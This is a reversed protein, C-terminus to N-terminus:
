SLEGIDLSSPYLRKKQQQVYKCEPEQQPQIKAVQPTEEEIELIYQKAKSLIETKFDMLRKGKGIKHAYKERIFQPLKPHLLQIVNMLVLDEHSPSLREDEKLKENKWEITDGKKALNGMILSRYQNYFGIPTTQATPDWKLDVVNFFHIGQTEIDYDQRIKNYIWQLSTSHRIIPNYYDPHVFKAVITIFQRLERRTDHLTDDTHPPVPILVRHESEEAATWTAYAGGPLFKRFKQEIELYVELEEKWIAFQTDTIGEAPLQNPPYIKISSM